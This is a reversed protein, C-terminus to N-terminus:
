GFTPPRNGATLLRARVAIGEAIAAIECIRELGARLWRGRKADTVGQSAGRSLGPDAERRGGCHLDADDVALRPRAVGPHNASRRRARAPAHRLFPAARAPDRQRAARTRRAAAGHDAARYAALATRGQRGSVAARGTQACFPM